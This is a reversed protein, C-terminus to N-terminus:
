IDEFDISVLRADALKRLHFFWRMDKGECECTLPSNQAGGDVLM